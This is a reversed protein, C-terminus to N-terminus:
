SADGGAAEGASGDEEEPFDFTLGEDRQEFTLGALDERTDPLLFDLDVDTERGGWRANPDIPRVVRIEVEGTAELVHWVALLMSAEHEFGETQARAASSYYARRAANRGAPPVKLLKDHLFRLMMMDRRLMLQGRRRHNGEVNWGDLDDRASLDRYTLARTLDAGLSSYTSESLELRTRTESSTIACATMTQHLEGCLPELAHRVIEIGSTDM